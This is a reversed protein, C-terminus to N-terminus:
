LLEYEEADKEPEETPEEPTPKAPVKKPSEDPVVELPNGCERPTQTGAADVLAERTLRRHKGLERNAEDASVAQVTLTEGRESVRVWVPQAQSVTVEACGFQNGEDDVFVRASGESTLYPYYGDQALILYHKASPSTLDPDIFVRTGIGADGDYIYIVGMGDPVNKLPAYADGLMLACGVSLSAIAFLFGLKTASKAPKANM